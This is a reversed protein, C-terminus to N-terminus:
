IIIDSPKRILFDLDYNQTSIISEILLNVVESSLGDKCMFPDVITNNSIDKIEVILGSGKYDKKLLQKLQQCSINLGILTNSRYQLLQKELDLIRKDKKNIKNNKMNM